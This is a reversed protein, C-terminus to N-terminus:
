PLEPKRWDKPVKDLDQDKVSNYMNNRRSSKDVNSYWWKFMLVPKLQSIKV